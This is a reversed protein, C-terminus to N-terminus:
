APSPRSSPWLCRGAWLSLFTMPNPVRPTFGFNSSLTAYSLLKIDQLQEQILMPIHFYQCIHKEKCKKSRLKKSCEMCKPRIILKLSVNAFIEVIWSSVDLLVIKLDSNCRANSLVM